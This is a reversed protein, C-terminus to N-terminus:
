AEVTAYKVVAGIEKAKYELDFKFGTWNWPHGFLEREPVNVVVVQGCGWRRANDVIRRSWLHNRDKIYRERRVALNSIREQVGRFMKRSGWIRRPNGASQRCKEYREAILRMSALGDIAEYVSVKDGQFAQPGSVTIHAEPSEDCFAVTLATKTDVVCERDPITASITLFIKNDRENVYTTGLKYEGDRVNRWFHHRAGDLRGLRFEVEGIEYDWKLFVSHGSLKPVTNKMPIGIHEFRAFARAGNLILYGNTATPFEPDRARWKPSISDRHISEPVISMWSPHLDRVWKRLEYLHAKGTVGFATELIEKAAKGPKVTVGKVDDVLIEAGAAEALACASYAKRCAARYLRIGRLVALKKDCIADIRVSRIM